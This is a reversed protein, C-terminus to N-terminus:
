NKKAVILISWAFYRFFNFKFLLQDLKSLLKFFKSKEPLKYFPFFALTLFGYYKIKVEDYKKKLFVLDSKVLPHEDPSRSNPTLKRYINIIPNTGLPEIFILEGNKKLIRHIESLCKELKLHHLIGTGYVVDFSNDNLSSEECNDVKFDVDIKKEKAFDKAKSISVESIDIGTISKAKYSFVKEATNGIGCGYDLVIKDKCNKKLYNFFDENANYLSKYFIDEFRGKDRSQLKNHFEKERINEQSLQM